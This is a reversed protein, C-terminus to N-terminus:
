SPCSSYLGRWAPYLWGLFRRWAHAAHGYLLQRRTPQYDASRQAAGKDFHMVLMVGVMILALARNFWVGDLHVGLLAGAVAGPIACASLSLSLQFDRFGRRAFTVIRVRYETGPHRHPQHRQGGPRAPGHFGDGAGHAAIRRRRDCQAFGGVIGVVILLALRGCISTGGSLRGDLTRAHHRVGRRYHPSYWYHHRLTAKTAGARMAIAIGQIIEGADPGMMHVGVVRDTAADVIIKMFAKEDRGSLTHKM